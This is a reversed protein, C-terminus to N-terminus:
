RLIKGSEPHLEFLVEPRDSLLAYWQDSVRGARLVSVSNKRNTFRAEFLPSKELKTRLAATDSDETDIIKKARLHTLADLIPDVEKELRKGRVDKWDSGERTAHLKQAPSKIELVDVDDSEFPLLVRARLASFEDLRSLMELAAGAITVTRSKGDADTRGPLSAFRIQGATIDGLRLEHTTKDTKWKLVWAPRALGFAEPPGELAWDQVRLTSLTDLLHGVFKTDARQDKLPHPVSASLIRWDDNEKQLLANWHDGATADNKFIELETVSRWDMPFASTGPALAPAEASFTPKPKATCATVSILALLLPASALVLRNLCSGNRLSKERFRVKYQPQAM